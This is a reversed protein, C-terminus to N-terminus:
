KWAPLWYYSHDLWLPVPIGAWHPYFYVFLILSLVLFPAIFKKQKYLVFGILMCMFPIAPFYHYFFMIRPSFAWPTFMALYAGLVLLLKKRKESFIYKLSITASALGGWFVVPNGMGYINAVTNTEGSTYLWIPRLLLPWSWWTSSYPHTAVLRTHYWWMQKQMGWFISFDHGSM